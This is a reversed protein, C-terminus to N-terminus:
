SLPSKSKDMADKFAKKGNGSGNGKDSINLEDEVHAFFTSLYERIYVPSRGKAILMVGERIMNMLQVRRETRREFKIAIPKFFLNALAVGYLTTLLAFAMDSGIQAMNSEGMGQLMNVLGVLTGLMGFAPAFMAMTRYIQAEAKERIKMKVIRWELLESMDQHPTNNILLELGTRLFPNKVQELQDEVKILDGQVLQRAVSVLEKQDDQAYLRENKLVIWLIKFVNVVERLPYALLTAAFTGGLVVALGPLNVFSWADEATFFIAAFVIAMGSLMGILTSLNM